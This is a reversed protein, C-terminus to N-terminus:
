PRLLSRVAPGRRAAPPAPAPRRHPPPFIRCLMPTATPSAPASVLLAVSVTVSFERFLRGAVGGMFLLPILAAILSLTMSVVTFAVQRAGNIAAHLPSEGSEVHRVINEIVVIADEVVFGVAITMGM